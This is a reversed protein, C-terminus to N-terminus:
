IGPALACLLSTAAFLAVGALLPRRRGVRVSLPGAVLQGLALGVMCASLTAQGAAESADLDDALEPLAPLYLDLALPGFSTLAGLGLVLRRPSMTPTADADM